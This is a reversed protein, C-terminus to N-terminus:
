VRLFVCILGFLLCVSRSVRKISVAKLDAITPRMLIRLKKKSMKPKEALEKLKERKAEEEEQMIREMIAAKPQIKEKEGM